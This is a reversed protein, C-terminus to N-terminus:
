KKKKHGSGFIKRLSVIASIGFQIGRYINMGNLLLSSATDWRNKADTPPALLNATADKIEQQNVSLQERLHAKQMAIGEQTPVALSSALLSVMFRTTPRVIWSTRNAYILVAILLLALAIIGFGLLLSGTLEGIWYALAFSSFLLVLSGVLILVLVLAVTALLRTLVEATHLGLYQKQLDWYRCGEEFLQGMQSTMQENVFLM